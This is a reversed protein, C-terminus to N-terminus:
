AFWPDGGAEVLEDELDFSRAAMGRPKNSHLDEVRVRKTQGLPAKGPVGGEVRSTGSVKDVETSPPSDMFWTDGGNMLVEDEDDLYESRGSVEEEAVKMSVMALFSKMPDDASDVAADLAGSTQGTAEVSSSVSEIVPSASSASTTTTTTSTTTSTIGDPNTVTTTTTTTVTTVINSRGIETLTAGISRMGIMKIRVEGKSVRSQFRQGAHFFATSVDMSVYLALILASSKM